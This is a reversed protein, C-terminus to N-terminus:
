PRGGLARLLGPLLASLPVLGLALAVVLGLGLLALLAGTLRLTSRSTAGKAKRLLTEHVFRGLAETLNWGARPLRRRWPLRPHVQAWVQTVEHELRKLDVTGPQAKAEYLYYGALQLKAPHYYGRGERAWRKMWALEAATFPRDCTRGRALLEEAEDEPLPGLAIHEVFLNFFPSSLGRERVLEAVPTHTAVVMALQSANMWSRLGDFFAMPFDHDLLAELEDLLLVVPRGARRRDELAAELAAAEAPPLHLERSLAHYFDAPARLGQGDVFVVTAPPLSAPALQKVRWLLSSKGIRRPGHINIHQAQPLAALARFVRTLEARRGVFYRADRLMGNYLFPNAAM